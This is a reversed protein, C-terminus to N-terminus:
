TSFAVRWLFKGLSTIKVIFRPFSVYFSLKSLYIYIYICVQFYVCCSLEQSRSERSRKESLIRPTNAESNTVRVWVNVRLKYYLSISIRQTSRTPFRANLSTIMRACALRKVRFGVFFCATADFFVFILPAPGAPYRTRTLLRRIFKRQRSAVDPLESALLNRALLAQQRIRKGSAAM